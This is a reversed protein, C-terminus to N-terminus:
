LLFKGSILFYFIMGCSWVLSKENIIRKSNFEPPCYLTDTLNYDLAELSLNTGDYPISSGNDVLKIKEDDILMIKECRLDLYILGNSLYNFLAEIVQTIIQISKREDYPKQSIIIKQLEIGNM